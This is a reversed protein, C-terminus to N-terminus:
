PRSYGPVQHRAIGSDGGPYTGLVGAGELCRNGPEVEKRRPNAGCRRERQEDLGFRDPHQHCEGRHLCYSGGFRNNGYRWLGITPSGSILACVAAESKSHKFFKYCSFYAWLFMGTIVVLSVITLKLDDFLMASDAKVISVFLAAPLAYTLVLKNLVKSDEAKFVKEKGAMYGLFMIVFIPLIDKILIDIM